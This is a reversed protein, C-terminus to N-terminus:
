CKGPLALGDLAEELEGRITNRCTDTIRMEGRWGEAIIRSFLKDWYLARKRYQSNKLVRATQRAVRAVAPLSTPKHTPLQAILASHESERLAEETRVFWGYFSRVLGTKTAM